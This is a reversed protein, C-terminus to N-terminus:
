AAYTIVGAVKITISIRLLADNVIELINFAKVYGSFVETAAGTDPLTLTMVQVVGIPPHGNEPEWFAEHTVEGGEVFSGPKYTEWYNGDASVATGLHSTKLDEMSPSPGGLSTYKPLWTTTTGMGFTAGRGTIQAM